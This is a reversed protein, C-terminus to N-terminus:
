VLLLNVKEQDVITVRGQVDFRSVRKLNTFVMTWLEESEAGVTHAFLLVVLNHNADYGVVEYTTGYSQFRCGQCHAADATTTARGYKCFHSAISLVFVFGSYYKRGDVIDSCNVVRHDFSAEEPVFGGKKLKRFIFRAAKVRTQRIEEASCTFIEVFHGLEELLVAYGEMTAMEELRSATMMRSIESKVASFHRLGPQRTYIQKATVISIIFKTTLSPNEKLEPLVLRAVQKATYAPTCNRTSNTDSEVEQGLCASM